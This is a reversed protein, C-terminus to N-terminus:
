KFIYENAKEISIIRNKKIFVMALWYEKFCSSFPYHRVDLIFSALIGKYFNMKSFYNGNETIKSWLVYRYLIRMRCTEMSPKGSTEDNKHLVTLNPHIVMSCGFKKTISVGIYLDELFSWKEMAYPYDIDFLVSKRYVMNCGFLWDAQTVKNSATDRVFDGWGSDLIKNRLGNSYIGLTRAVFTKVKTKAISNKDMYAGGIGNCCENTNMYDLVTSFYDKNVEIDDDFFAVLESKAVNAGVYRARSSSKFDVHLIETISRIAQPLMSEIITEDGQEVIIIESLFDVQCSINHLLSLLRDHRNITPIVLSLKDIKM